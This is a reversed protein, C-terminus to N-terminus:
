CVRRIRNGGGGCEVVASFWFLFYLISWQRFDSNIFSIGQSAKRRVKLPLMKTLIARCWVSNNCIHTLHLRSLRCACLFKSYAYVYRVGRLMLLCVWVCAWWRWRWWWWWWWRERQMGPLLSLCIDYVIVIRYTVHMCIIDRRCQRLTNTESMQSGTGNLLRVTTSKLQLVFM